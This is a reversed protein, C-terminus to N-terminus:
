GVTSKRGKLQPKASQSQRRFALPSLGNVRQFVRAFHNAHSFGLVQSIEYVPLDTEGLLVCAERIRQEAVYRMVSTNLETQFLRNLHPVSIFAHAAIRELTLPDNLNRRVYDRAREISDNHMSLNPESADTVAPPLRKRRGPEKASVPPNVISHGVRLTLALMLAQAIAPPRLPEASLEEILVDILPAIGMDRVLQVHEWGHSEGDTRCVHTALGQPLLIMWFIRSRAEHLHPREWHPRDGNSYPMGPPIVLLSRAPLRLVYRGVAADLEPNAAAMRQTVGITFDAEGDLICILCARRSAHLGAEPWRAANLSNQPVRSAALLPAAVPVVEISSSAQFPPRALMAEITGARAWPLMGDRLFDPVDVNKAM